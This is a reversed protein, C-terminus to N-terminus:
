FALAIQTFSQGSLKAPVPLLVPILPQARYPYSVSIELCHQNAQVQGGPCNKELVNVMVGSGAASACQNAIGIQELWKLSNKAAECAANARTAIVDQNQSFRVAARGGEAAALSLSHQIAFIISYTLLGYMMLFLIPFILAFEVASVGDCSNFKVRHTCKKKMDFIQM